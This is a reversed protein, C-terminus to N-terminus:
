YRCAPLFLVGDRSCVFAAWACCEKMRERVDVFMGLVVVADLWVVVAAAIACYTLLDGMEAACSGDLVVVADSLVGCVCGGGWVM